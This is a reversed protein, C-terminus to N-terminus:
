QKKPVEVSMDPTYLQYNNRGHKKVYNMAIDAKKMLTQLDKGHDPYITIGVSSTINHEQKELVFPKELTSFIRQAISNMNEIKNIEQLLLIFEDGGMRAVTDSKRLFGTLRDAMKKLLEDGVDYGLSTNINQFYDLDLFIIAVKKKYRYAHAVAMDFRDSFLMRNPLGTLPDHMAMYVLREETMKRKSIDIIVGLVGVVEGNKVRPIEYLMVPFTTGDKRLATYENVVFRQGKLVKRFSNTARNRDGSILMQFAMPGESFDAKEYGFNKLGTDNLFTLHEKKDLEFITQPLLNALERFKVESERLEKGISKWEAEKEQLETIKKHAEELKRLLQGKAQEEGAM